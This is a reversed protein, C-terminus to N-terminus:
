PPALGAPVPVTPMWTPGLAPGLRSFLMMELLSVPIATSGVEVAVVTIPAFRNASLVFLPGSPVLAM